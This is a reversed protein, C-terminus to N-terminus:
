GVVSLWDHGLDDAQLANSGGVQRANGTSGGVLRHIPGDLDQMGNGVAVVALGHRAAITLRSDNIPLVVSRGVLDPQFLVLLVGLGSM